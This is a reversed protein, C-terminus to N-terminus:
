KENKKNKKCLNLINKVIYKLQKNNLSPHIPLSVVKKYFNEAIPFFKKKINFKKKYYEQTYIPIYHVQLKIGRELMKKFFLKKNINLIEFNIQLPFLHYSHDCFRNVKPTKFISKDVFSENYFNAIKKREKLFFNIKKLQSTGLSCLIDALRYNFGLKNMQYFWLGNKRDLFKNKVIGHSRLLKVNENIKKNNTIISGGEGTTIAKM